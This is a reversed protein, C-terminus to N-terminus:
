NLEGEGQGEGGPLPFLLPVILTNQRPFAEDAANNPTFPNMNFKLKSSPTSTPCPTAPDSTGSNASTNEVSVDLLESNDRPANQKLAQDLAHIARRWPRPFHNRSSDDHM